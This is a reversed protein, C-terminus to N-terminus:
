RVLHRTQILVTENNCNVLSPQNYCLLCINQFRFLIFHFCNIQFILLDITLSSVELFSLLSDVVSPISHGCKSIQHKLYLELNEKRTKIKNTSLRFFSTGPFSPMQSKIEKSLETPLNNISSEILLRLADLESYRYVVEWNENGYTVVIKYVIFKEEKMMIGHSRRILRAAFADPIHISIKSFIDKSCYDPILWGCLGKPQRMIHVPLTPYKRELIKTVKLNLGAYTLDIEIILKSNDESM